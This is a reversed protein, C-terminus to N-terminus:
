FEEMDDPRRSRAQLVRILRRVGAASMRASPQAANGRPSAGPREADDHLDEATDPARDESEVRLWNEVGRAGAKYALLDVLRRSLPTRVVGTVTVIGEQAEITIIAGSLMPHTGISDAILLELRQDHLRHPHASSPRM